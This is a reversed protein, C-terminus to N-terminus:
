RDFDVHVNNEDLMQKNNEKEWKALESKMKDKYFLMQGKPIANDGSDPFDWIGLVDIIYRYKVKSYTGFYPQCEYIWRAPKTLIDHIKIKYDVWTTDVDVGLGETPLIQLFIAREEQKLGETRNVRVKLVTEVAGATFVVKEMVYDVDKVATTKEDVVVLNVERDYDVGKGTVVLPVEIVDMELDNDRVAFSYTVSDATGSGAVRKFYVQAGGTYDFDDQESCGIVAVLMLLGLIFINTTKMMVEKKIIEM